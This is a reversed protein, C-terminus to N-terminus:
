GTYPDRHMLATIAAVQPLSPAPAVYPAITQNIPEVVVTGVSTVTYSVFAAPTVSLNSLEAFTGAEVAAVPNLGMLLTTLSTLGVFDARRLATIRNVILILARLGPVERIVAPIASFRCGTLSLGSPRCCGLNTQAGSGIEACCNLFALLM